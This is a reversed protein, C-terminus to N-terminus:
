KPKKARLIDLSGNQFSALYLECGDPSLWTPYQSSGSALDMALQPAAFAETKSPRTSKYIQRTRGTGASGFYLTLEDGSLVPSVEQITSNPFLQTPGAFQTESTRVAAFLRSGNGTNRAYYMISGTVGMWPYEVNAGLGGTAGGLGSVPIPGV